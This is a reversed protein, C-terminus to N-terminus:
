ILYRQQHGVYQRTFAIWKGDPSFKAFLELGPHATLRTALGGATSALWLDGGYTFVVTDGHVDPFRLLKTQADAVGALIMAAFLGFLIKKCHNFTMSEKEGHLFLRIQCFSAVASFSTQFGCCEIVFELVRDFPSGPSCGAPGRAHIMLIHLSRACQVIWGALTGLISHRRDCGQAFCHRAQQVVAVQDCHLPKSVQNREGRSMLDYPLPSFM